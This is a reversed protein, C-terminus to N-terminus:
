HEMQSVGGWGVLGVGGWWYTFVFHKLDGHVLLLFRQLLQPQSEAAGSLLDSWVQAGVQLLM